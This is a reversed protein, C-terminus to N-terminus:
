KIEKRVVWEHNMEDSIGKKKKKRRTQKEVLIL